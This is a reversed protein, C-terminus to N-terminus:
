GFREVLAARQRGSLGRVRRSETIRVDDLVAQATTTGVRPLALLLERIRMRALAEDHEAAELFESLRVTGDKLARRARARRARAEVAKGSARRRQETTLEPIAPSMMSVAERGRHDAGAVGEVLGRRREDSLPHHRRLPLVRPRPLGRALQRAHAFVRGPDRGATQHHADGGHGSETRLRMLTTSSRRDPGGSGGAGFGPVRGSPRVDVARRSQGGVVLREGGEAVAMVQEGLRLDRRRIHDTWRVFQDPFADHGPLARLRGSSQVVDAVLASSASRCRWRAPRRLSKVPRPRRGARSSHSPPGRAGEACRPMPRAADAWHALGRGDDVLDVVQVAPTPDALDEDGQDVDLPDEGALRNAGVGRDAVRALDEAGNGGVGAPRASSAPDPASADAAARDFAGDARGSREGGVREGAVGPIVPELGLEAALRAGEHRGTAVAERVRSLPFGTARAVASVAPEEDVYSTDLWVRVIAAARDDVAAVRAVVEEIFARGEFPALLWGAESAILAETAEDSTLVDRAEADYADLEVRPRAAELDGTSYRGRHGTGAANLRDIVAKEDLGTANMEGRIRRGRRLVSKMGAAPANGAESDAFSRVRNRLRMVLHADFSYERRAVGSQEEVIMEAVVEWALSEVEQQVDLTDPLSWRRRERRAIERVDDKWGALLDDVMGDALARRLAPVKVTNM